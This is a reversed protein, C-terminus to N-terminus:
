AMVNRWSKMVGNAKMVSVNCIKAMSSEALKKSKEGAVYNEKM